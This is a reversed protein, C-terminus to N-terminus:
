EITFNFKYKSESYDDEYRMLFTYNGSKSIADNFLPYEDDSFLVMGKNYCFCKIERIEGSPIKIMVTQYSNNIWRERTTRNYPYISVSYNDGEDHKILFGCPSNTTASNSFVGVADFYEFSEGTKDGFDDVYYETEWQALTTLTLMMSAYLILQKM